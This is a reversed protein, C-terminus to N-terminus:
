SGVGETVCSGLPDVTVSRNQQTMRPRACHLPGACVVLRMKRVGIQACNELRRTIKYGAMRRCYSSQTM